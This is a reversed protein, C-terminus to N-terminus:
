STRRRVRADESEPNAAPRRTALRAWPSSPARGRGVEWDEVDEFLNGPLGSEYEADVPLGSGTSASDEEVAVGLALYYEKLGDREFYHRPDKVRM